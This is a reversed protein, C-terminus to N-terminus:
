RARVIYLKNLDESYYGGDYVNTWPKPPILCPAYRPLVSKNAEDYGRIWEITKPTPNLYTTTKNKGEVHKAVEFLATRKIIEDIVRTGVHIREKPSWTTDRMGDKNIRHVMGKTAHGVHGKESAEKLIKQAWKPDTALWQDIRSQTEISVGVLRACNLFTRKHAIGDICASVGLYAIQRPDMGVILKCTDRPSTANNQVEVIGEAIAQISAAIITRGAKSRAARGKEILKQETEEYRAIGLAVMEHEHRLQDELTAM